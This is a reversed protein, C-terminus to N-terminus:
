FIDVAFRENRLLTLNGSEDCSGQGIEQFLKRAVTGVDEATTRSGCVYFRADAEWLRIVDERDRWMADQVYRVCEQEHEDQLNGRSFVWRVDVAGTAAWAAFEEAYLQDKGKRRCGVFLLAPPLRTTLLGDHIMAVREQVLARFPALGTGNALMVIPIQKPVAPLRFNPNTSRVSVLLHDGCNLSRLYNSAVGQFRRQTHDATTPQHWAPADLVSYTLTVSSSNVLPSSSISYLRPSLPPLLCLFAPFSLPLTSHHQILLDLVTIRKDIINSAYLNPTDRYARLINASDNGTCVALLTGLDQKTAPQSIEVYGELLDFVSIPTGTPLSTPAGPQITIADRSLQFHRLVRQVLESPNLPLVSLYDGTRYTVNSPIEIEIHRKEPEEQATLLKIDVVRGWQASQSLHDARNQSTIEVDLTAVTLHNTDCRPVGPSVLDIDLTPWLCETMWLDFDGVPDKKSVDSLGRTLMRKAGGQSLLEDIRTPIKQFTSVWDKHGCGFVAYEVGQLIKEEADDKALTELWAMFRAADDTPLGEYSATIIISPTDRPMKGVMQDLTRVDTRFGRQACRAALRQALAQCTGTNSGYLISLEHTGNEDPSIGNSVRGRVQDQGAGIADGALRQILVMPTIGPRLTTRMYFDKPKITLTQVIKLEYGPDDLQVDFNQLIMAMALVAEQWAFARGICARMGTGFPKWANKPLKSFEEDMMREPRFANADDGWVKPERQIKSLLCTVPKGRPIAYKKTSGPASGGIYVTEETNEPRM